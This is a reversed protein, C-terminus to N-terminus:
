WIIEVPLRSFIDINLKLNIRSFTLFLLVPTSPQLVFMFNGKGPALLAHAEQAPIQVTRDPVEHDSELDSGPDAEPQRECHGRERSFVSCSYTLAIDM